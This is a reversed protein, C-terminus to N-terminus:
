LAMAGAASSGRPDMDLIVRSHALASIVEGGFSAGVKIWYRCASWTAYGRISRRTAPTAPWKGWALWRWDNRAALAAQVKGNRGEKWERGGSGNWEMRGNDM